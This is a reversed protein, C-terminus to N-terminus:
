RATAVDVSWPANTRIDSGLLLFFYLHRTVHHSTVYVSYPSLPLAFRVDRGSVSILVSGVGSQYKDM